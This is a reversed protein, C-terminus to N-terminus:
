TKLAKTNEPVSGSSAEAEETQASIFLQAFAEDIMLDIFDKTLKVLNLSKKYKAASVGEITSLISVIDQKHKKLLAPLFKKARELLFEQATAGEPLKERKFMEGALEDQAINAIPKILDAIVDLTREGKIDSLKM